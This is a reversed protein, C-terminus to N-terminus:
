EGKFIINIQYAMNSDKVNEDLELLQDNIYIKNDKFIGLHVSIVLDNGMKEIVTFETNQPYIQSKPNNSVVNNILVRIWTQPADLTVKVNIEDDLKFGRVEYNQLNIKTVDLKKMPTPEITPVPTSTPIIIPETIMPTEKVKSNDFIVDKNQYIVFVLLVIVVIATCSFTLFSYDLIRKKKIKKSSNIKSVKSKISNNLNIENISTESLKRERYAKIELNLEDDYIYELGLYKFYYKIYYKLYSLDDCFYDINGAEIEKLIEINTKLSKSVEELSINKSERNEKLIQGINIM